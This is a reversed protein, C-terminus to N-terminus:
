DGAAGDAPHVGLEAASVRLEKFNAFTLDRFPLQRDDRLREFLSTYSKRIRAQWDLGLQSAIERIQGPDPGEVEVFNGFPLEDLSIEAGDLEYVTRQKEYVLYVQFGLAELLARAAAFDEVVVEIEYRSRAGGREESPGKFTMRAQWDQRLRLVQRSRTLARSPTDFRLNVELTRPQILRAEYDELRRQLAAPDSIYFKVELELGELAM